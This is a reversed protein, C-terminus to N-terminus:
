GERPLARRKLVVKVQVVDHRNEEPVFFTKALKASAYAQKARGDDGELKVEPDDAAGALISVTQKALALTERDVNCFECAADEYGEAKVSARLNAEPMKGMYFLSRALYFFSLRPIDAFLAQGDANVPLTRSMPEWSDSIRGSGYARDIDASDGLLRIEKLAVQAGSVPKGGEDVVSVKVGTKYRDKLLPMLEASLLTMNRMSMFHAKKVTALVNTLGKPLAGDLDAPLADAIAKPFVFPRLPASAAIAKAAAEDAAKEEAARRTEAAQKDQAAQALRARAQDPTEGKLLPAWYQDNGPKVEKTLKGEGSVYAVVQWRENFVTYLIEGSRRTNRIYHTKKSKPFFISEESEQPKEIGAYYLNKESRLPWGEEDYTHDTIRWWTGREDTEKFRKVQGKAPGEAVRETETRYGDSRVFVETGSANTCTYDVPTAYCTNTEKQQWLYAVGPYAVHMGGVYHIENTAVYALIKKRTEVAQAADVDYTVAVEPHPIQLLAAHTLDGWILLKKTQGEVLFVTHGPTHGDAAFATVGRVLQAPKGDELKQPHFLRFRGAYADAIIQADDGKQKWHEFERRAIYVTANTFVAVGGRLLGGIHDRHMHTILVADIDGAGVGASKLNDLLKLGLGTDVLVTKGAARVLFANVANSVSGGPAYRKLIDDTAGILIEKGITQQREALTTVTAGGLQFEFTGPLVAEEAWAAWGALAIMGVIINTRM